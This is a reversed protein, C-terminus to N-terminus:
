SLRRRYFTTKEFHSPLGIRTADYLYSTETVPDGTLMKPEQKPGQTSVNTQTLQECNKM